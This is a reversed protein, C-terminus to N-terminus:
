KIHDLIFAFRNLFQLALKTDMRDLVKNSGWWTRKKIKRLVLNFLEEHAKTMESAGFLLNFLLANKFVYPHRKYRDFGGCFVRV